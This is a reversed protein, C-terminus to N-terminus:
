NSSDCEAPAPFKILRGFLRWVIMWLKHLRAEVHLLEQMNEADISGHNIANRINYLRDKNPKIKFCENIYLEAHEPFCIKFVYDAKGVLGTDVIQKYCYIIDTTTLQGSKQSMFTDIAAQKELKSSKPKPRIILVAEILCEFANWYASYIRLLDPKHSEMVLNRPERIWYLAAEIKRQVKTPLRCLSDIAPVLASNDFEPTCGGGTGHTVYSWWGCSANGWSVLTHTGLFMNIRKAAEILEPISTEPITVKAKLVCLASKIFTKTEKEPFVTIGLQPVSIIKEPQKFDGYILIQLDDGWAKPWNAIRQELDAIGWAETHNHGATSLERVRALLTDLQNSQDENM